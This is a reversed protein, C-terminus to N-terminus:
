TLIGTTISIHEETFELQDNKIVHDGISLYSVDELDYWNAFASLRAHSALEVPLLWVIKICGETLNQLLIEVEDVDFIRQLKSWRKAVDEVTIDEFNKKWKDQIRTYYNDTIQLDPIDDLIEALKKSFIASKYKDILEEAKTQRSFAAMRELMRINIWSCHNSAILVALLNDTNKTTSIENIFRKPLKNLKAAHKDPKVCASRLQTFECNSCKLIDGLAPVLKLFMDDVKESSKIELPAPESATYGQSLQNLAQETKALETVDAIFIIHLM